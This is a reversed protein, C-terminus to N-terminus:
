IICSPIGLQDYYILAALLQWRLDNKHRGSAMSGAEGVSLKTKHTATLEEESRMLGPEAEVTM